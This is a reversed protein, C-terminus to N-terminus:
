TLDDSFEVNVIRFPNSVLNLILAPVRVAVTIGGADITELITRLEIQLCRGAVHLPVV